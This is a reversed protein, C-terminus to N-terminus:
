RKGDKRKRVGGKTRAKKATPAEGVGAAKETSATSSQRKNESRKREKQQQTIVNDEIRQQKALLLFEERGKVGKDMLNQVAKDIRTKDSPVTDKSGLYRSWHFQSFRGLAPALDKNYVKPKLKLADACLAHAYALVPDKNSDDSGLWAQKIEKPPRLKFQSKQNVEIIARASADWVMQPLITNGQQHKPMLETLSLIIAQWGAEAYPHADSVNFSRFESNPPSPVIRLTTGLLQLFKHDSFRSELAARWNTDSLIMAVVAAGGEQQRQKSILALLVARGGTMSLLWSLGKSAVWVGAAAFGEPLVQMAEAILTGTLKSIAGALDNDVAAAVKQAVVKAEEEPLLRMVDAVVGGTLRKVGGALDNGVAAAVRQAMALKEAEPLLQMAAEVLGGTLQEVGGALDSGVAAAVKKAMVLKEADPLLRMAAEVLGGTLRKVGGALDAGVLAAVKQAMVLKEADPLLQMAAEVLGGTLRKVGGALDTGVLAAVKQAMVLKKEADPLLRMAEAVLGGTFRNVAGALDDGVAAAVNQAMAKADEEPLLRMAAEIAGGTLVKVYGQIKGSLEKALLSKIEIAMEQQESHPMAGMVAAVKAGQKRAIMTAVLGDSALGDGIFKRWWGAAKTSRMAAAFATAPLADIVAGREEDLSAAGEMYQEWWRMVTDRKLAEAFATAALHAVVAGREEEGSYRGSALDKEWEDAVSAVKLAMGYKTAKLSRLYSVAGKGKAADSLYQVFMSPDVALLQEFLQCGCEVMVEITERDGGALLEGLLEETDGHKRRHALVWATVTDTQLWLMGQWDARLAAAKCMGKNYLPCTSPAAGRELKEAREATAAVLDKQEQNYIDILDDADPIPETEGSTPETEMADRARLVWVHERDGAVPMTRSIQGGIAEGAKGGSLLHGKSDTTYVAVIWDNTNVGQRVHVVPDPHKDHHGVFEVKLLRPVLLSSGLLEGIEEGYIHEGIEQMNTAKTSIGGEAPSGLKFWTIRKYVVETGDNYRKVLESASRNIKTKFCYEYDELEPGTKATIPHYVFESRGGPIIVEAIDAFFALNLGEVVTGLVSLVRQGILAVELGFGPRKMLLELDQKRDPPLDGMTKAALRKLEETTYRLGARGSEDVITAGQLFKCLEEKEADSPQDSAAASAEQAEILLRLLAQRGAKSTDPLQPPVPEEARTKSKTAEDLAKEAAMAKQMATRAERMADDARTSASDLRLKTARLEKQCDTLEAANSSQELELSSLSQIIEGISQGGGLLGRSHWQLTDDKHIGYYALTHGDQLYKGSLTAPGATSLLMTTGKAAVKKRVMQKLATVTTTKPNVQLTLTGDDLKVFVQQPEAGKDGSGPGGLGVTGKGTQVGTMDKKDGKCHDSGAGEEVGEAAVKLLAAVEGEKGLRIASERVLSIHSTHSTPALVAEAEADTLVTASDTLAPAAALLKSMRTARKIIRKVADRFARSSPTSSSSRAKRAEKAQKITVRLEHESKKVVAQELQMQLELLLKGVEDNNEEELMLSEMVADSLSQQAQAAIQKKKEKEEKFRMLANFVDSHRKKRRQGQAVKPKETSNTNYALLPSIPICGLSRKITSCREEWEDEPAVDSTIAAEKVQERILPSTHPQEQEEDATEEGLSASATASLQVSTDACRVKKVASRFPLDFARAASRAGANRDDIHGNTDALNPPIHKANEALQQEQERVHEEEEHKPQEDIWNVDGDLVIWKPMENPINGLDRMVKSLLGDRWERTAMTIYGCLERTLISKPNVDVAMTKSNEGMSAAQMLERAEQLTRWASSKFAGASGMIFVCHRIEALEKLQVVKLHYDTDPTYGLVTCGKTISEELEPNVKRPPDSGPFLDGILGFFIPGDCAPINPINFDRLARMLLDAEPATPEERKFGGAVVLV